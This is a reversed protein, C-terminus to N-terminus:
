KQFEGCCDDRDGITNSKRDALACRLMSSLIVEKDARLEVRQARVMCHLSKMGPQPEVWHRIIYSRKPDKESHPELGDIAVYVGVGNPIEDKVKNYLELPMVYYNYNGFFSKKAKSHFDNISQKIEYCYVDRYCNYMVCDVIETGNWGLTCEFVYFESRPKFKAALLDELQKTIKTKSM